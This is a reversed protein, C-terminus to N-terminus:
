PTSARESELHPTGSFNRMDYILHLLEVDWTKIVARSFISNGFRRQTRKSLESWLVLKGNIDEAALKDTLYLELTTLRQQGDQLINSYKDFNVGDSMEWDNVLFSGIDGKSWVSALFRRQQTLTWVFGRQWEPLPYGMVFKEAWPYREREGESLFNEYNKFLGDISAASVRVDIFADPMIIDNEEDKGNRSYQINSAM